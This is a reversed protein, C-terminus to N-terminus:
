VKFRFQGSIAWGVMCLKGCVQWKMFQTVWNQRELWSNEISHQIDRHIKDNGDWGKIEIGDERSHWGGNRKVGLYVMCPWCYVLKLGGNQGLVRSDHGKGDVWCLLDSFSLTNWLYSADVVSPIKKMGIRLKGFPFNKDWVEISQGCRQVVSPM